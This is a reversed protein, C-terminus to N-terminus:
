AHVGARVFVGFLNADRFCLKAGDLRIICPIGPQVMEVTVGARLGLEQLRQVEDPPGILQEVEAVQGPELQAMPLLDDM